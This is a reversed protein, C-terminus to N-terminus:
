QLRTKKKRREAAPARLCRVQFGDGRYTAGIPYIYVSNFSLRYVNTGAITSSWDYGREGLGYM